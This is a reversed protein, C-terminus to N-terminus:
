NLTNMEARSIRDIWKGHQACTSHERLGTENSRSFLRSAYDWLARGPRNACMVRWFDTSNAPVPSPFHFLLSLTFSRLPPHFLPISSTFISLFLLILSFHSLEPDRTESVCNLSSNITCRHSIFHPFISSYYFLFILFTILRFSSALTRVTMSTRSIHGELGSFDYIRRKRRKDEHGLPKKDM